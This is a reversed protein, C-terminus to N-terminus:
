SEEILDAKKEIKIDGSSIEGMFYNGEKSIAFVKRDIIACKCSSDKVRFQSFSWTSGFYGIVKGM